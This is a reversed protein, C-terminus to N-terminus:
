CRCWCVNIIQKNYACQLKTMYQKLQCNLLYKAAPTFKEPFNAKSLRKSIWICVRFSCRKPWLKNSIADCWNTQLMISRLKNQPTCQTWNLFDLNMWSLNLWHYLLRSPDKLVTTKLETQPGVVKYKTDRKIQYVGNLECLERRIVCDDLDLTNFLPSM